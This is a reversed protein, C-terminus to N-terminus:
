GQGGRGPQFVRSCLAPQQERQGAAARSEAGSRGGGAQETLGCHFPQQQQQRRRCPAPLPPGGRPSAAAPDRPLPPAPLAEGPSCAAFAPTEAAAPLSPNISSINAILQSVSSISDSVHLLLLLLSPRCGQVAGSFSPKLGSRLPCGKNAVAAALSALGPPESAGAGSGGGGSSTPAEPLNIFDFLLRSGPSTLASLDALLADM